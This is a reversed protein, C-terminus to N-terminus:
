AVFRVDGYDVAVMYLVSFFLLFNDSRPECGLLLVGNAHKWIHESIM